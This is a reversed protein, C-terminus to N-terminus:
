QARSENNKNGVEYLKRTHCAFDKSVQKSKHRIIAVIKSSQEFGFSNLSM